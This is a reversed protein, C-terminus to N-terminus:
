STANLILKQVRFIEVARISKQRPTHAIYHVCIVPICNLILKLTLHLLQKKYIYTKVNIKISIWEYKETSLRKFMNHHM